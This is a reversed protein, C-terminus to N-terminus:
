MVLFTLGRSTFLYLAGILGIAILVGLTGVFFATGRLDPEEQHKKVQEM